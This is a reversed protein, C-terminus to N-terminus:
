MCQFLTVDHHARKKRFPHPLTRAELYLTRNSNWGERKPRVWDRRLELNSCPLKRPRKETLFAEFDTFWTDVADKSICARKKEIPRAKRLKIKPDHKIFSGFWKNGPKNGLHPGEM